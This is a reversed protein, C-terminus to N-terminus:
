KGNGHIKICFSYHTQPKRIIPHLFSINLSTYNYCPYIHIPRKCGSMAGVSRYVFGSKYYQSGIFYGLGDKYKAEIWKLM